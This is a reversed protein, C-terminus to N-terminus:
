SLCKAKNRFNEWLVLVSRFLYTCLSLLIIFILLHFHFLLVFNSGRSGVSSLKSIYLYIAKNIKFWMAAKKPQIEHNNETLFYIHSLKCLPDKALYQFISSLHSIKIFSIFCYKLFICIASSVCIESGGKKTQNSCVYRPLCKKGETNTTFICM